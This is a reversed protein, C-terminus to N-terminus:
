PLEECAPAGIATTTAETTAPAKRVCVSGSKCQMGGAISGAKCLTASYPRQPDCHYGDSKGRCDSPAGEAGETIELTEVCSIGRVGLQSRTVFGTAYWACGVAARTAPDAVLRALDLQQLAMAEMKM